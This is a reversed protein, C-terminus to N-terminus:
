AKAPVQTSSKTGQSQTGQDKELQKGLYERFISIITERNNM